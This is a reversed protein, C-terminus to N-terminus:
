IARKLAFIALRDAVDEAIDAINDIHLVFHRIQNKYSLDSDGEFLLRLVRHNIKDAETEYFIVKHMHDSISQDGRFFARLASVLSDVADVVSDVLKGFEVAVEDNLPPKEILFQWMINECSNLIQDTYELVELVDARSEPLLTEVYLRRQIDRRLHDARAEIESVHGQKEAFAESDGVLYAHLGMRFALSGESVCNCFDETQAELAKTKSFLSIM